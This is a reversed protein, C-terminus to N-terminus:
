IALQGPSLGLENMLLDRTRSTALGHDRRLQGFMEDRVQEWLQKNTQIVRDGDMYFRRASRVFAATTYAVLEKDSPVRTIRPLNGMDRQIEPLVEDFREFAEPAMQAGGRKIMADVIDDFRHSARELIMEIHNHGM